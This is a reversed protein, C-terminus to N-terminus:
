QTSPIHGRDTRPEKDCHLPQTHLSYKALVFPLIEGIVRLSQEERRNLRNSIRNEACHSTGHLHFGAQETSVIDLYVAM